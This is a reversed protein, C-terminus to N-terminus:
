GQLSERISSGINNFREFHASLAAEANHKKQESVGEAVGTVVPIATVTLLGILGLVM